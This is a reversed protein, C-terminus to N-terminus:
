INHTCINIVMLACYFVVYELTNIKALYKLSLEPCDTDGRFTLKQLKQLNEITVNKYAETDVNTFQECYIRLEELNILCQFILRLYERQFVSYNRELSLYKLNSLNTSISYIVQDSFYNRLTLKELNASTINDFLIDDIEVNM